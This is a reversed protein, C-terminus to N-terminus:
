QLPEYNKEKPNERYLNFSNDRNALNEVSILQREARLVYGFAWQRATEKDMAAEIEGDARVSFKGGWTWYSEGIRMDAPRQLHLFLLDRYVIAFDNRNRNSTYIGDALAPSSKCGCLFLPLVAGIALLLLTIKKM